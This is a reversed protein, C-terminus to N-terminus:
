DIAELRKFSWRLSKVVSSFEMDNISVRTIIVYVGPNLENILELFAARVVRKARNRRVANGIKKSAIVGFKKEDSALYYTM